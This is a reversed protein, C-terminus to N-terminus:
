IEPLEIKFQEAWAKLVILSWVERYERPKRYLKEVLDRVAQTSLWPTGPLARLEPTFNKVLWFGVPMEFGRKPAESVERPLIDACADILLSKHRGKHRKYSSPLTLMYDVLDHDLFPVRLELGNAMSVVDSDRLLTGADYWALDSKSFANLLDKESEFLEGVRDMTYPAESGRMLLPSIASASADTRIAKYAHYLASSQNPWHQLFGWAMRFAAKRAIKLRDYFLKAIPIALRLVPVRNWSQMKEVERAYRYGLFLEDGGLGSFAVKVKSCTVRSALYSNLGDGSPQDIAHIFDDFCSRVTIGDVKFTEHSANFRKAVNEASSTEDLYEGEADFGVNFTHIVDDRRERMLAVLVGSDIGGSLFAGVETDACLHRDVAAGLEIRTQKAVEEYSPQEPNTKANAVNWYEIEKIGDRSIELYHGPMLANVGEIATHPPHIANYRLYFQIAELDAKRPVIESGLIGKMESSFLVSEVDGVMVETWYV